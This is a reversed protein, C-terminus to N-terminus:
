ESTGSIQEKFILFTENCSQKSKVMRNLIFQTLKLHEIWLLKQTMPAPHFSMEPPLTRITSGLFLLDLTLSTSIEAPVQSISSQLSLYRGTLQPILAWVPCYKVTSVMPIMSTSVTPIQSATSLRMEVKAAEHATNQHPYLAEPQGTWLGFSGSAWWCMGATHSDAPYPKFFTLSSPQCPTFDM